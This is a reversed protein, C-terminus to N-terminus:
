NKRQRPCVGEDKLDEHFEDEFHFHSEAVARVFSQRTSEAHMNQLNPLLEINTPLDSDDCLRGGLTDSLTMAISDDRPSCSCSCSISV